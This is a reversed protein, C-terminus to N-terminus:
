LSSLIDVKEFESQEIIDKFSKEYLQAGVEKGKQTNKLNNNEYFDEKRDYLELLKGDRIDYVVKWNETVGMIYNFVQSICIEKHQEGNNQGNILPLLSKGKHGSPLELNLVDFITAPIDILEV